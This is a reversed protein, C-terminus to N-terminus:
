LDRVSFKEQVVEENILREIEKHLIPAYWRMEYCRLCAWVNFKPVFVFRTHGHKECKNNEFVPKM